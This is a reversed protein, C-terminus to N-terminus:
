KRAGEPIERTSVLRYYPAGKISVRVLLGMREFLDLTQEIESLAFPLYLDELQFPVPISKGEYEEVKKLVADWVVKQIGMLEGIPAHGAAKPPIEENAASKLEALSLLKKIKNGLITQGQQINSLIEAPSEVIEKSLESEQLFYSAPQLDLNPRKRIEEYSVMVGIVAGEPDLVCGQIPKNGTRVEAVEFVTFHPTQKEDNTISM